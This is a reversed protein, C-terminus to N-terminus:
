NSKTSPRESTDEKDAYREKEKLYCPYSCQYIYKKDVKLKYVYNRRDCLFMSFRKKCYSCEKYSNNFYNLM